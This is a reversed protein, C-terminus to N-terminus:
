NRAHWALMHSISNRATAAQPLSPQQRLSVISPSSSVAPERYKLVPTTPQVNLIEAFLLYAYGSYNLASAVNVDSAAAEGLLEKMRPVNDDGLFRSRQLGAWIGGVDGNDEKVDGNSM